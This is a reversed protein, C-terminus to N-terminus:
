DLLFLFSGHFSECDEAAFLSNRVAEDFCPRGEGLRVAVGDQGDEVGVDEVADGRRLALGELLFEGFEDAYLVAEDDIASCGGKVHGDGRQADARAVFDDQGGEGVPRGGGDDEMLVGNGHEDIDVFVREAKIRVQQFGGDGGARLGDQGDVDVAHGGIQFADDRDRFLVANGDDAVAALSM